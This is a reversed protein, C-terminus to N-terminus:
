KKAMGELLKMANKAGPHGADAAMKMWKAAEQTDRTVGSGNLYMGGLQYQADPHGIEAAQRFWRVAEAPDKAQGEGTRAMGALAYMAGGHGHGASRELWERAKAYDRQSPDAGDGGNQVGRAYILGLNYEAEPHNQGAAMEWWKRAKVYDPAGLNGRAEMLGMSFAAAQNGQEALPKLLRAADEYKQANYLEGAKFLQERDADSLAPSSASQSATAAVAFTQLGFCAITLGIFLIVVRYSLRDSM